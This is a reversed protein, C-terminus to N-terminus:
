GMRERSGGHPLVHRGADPAGPAELADYFPMDAGLLARIIKSDIASWASGRARGASTNRPHAIGVFFSPDPLPLVQRRELSWVFRTDEGEAVLPFSKRQWARKRYCMTNGAVWPRANARHRYRWSTRVSPAYYLLEQLGCVDAVPSRVLASAQRTIRDAAMWDDDDWHLILEGRATECAANRKAGLILRNPLREYRIRPDLPILDVIADEGDDLIVLETAPYDQRLFYEIARAAFSRRNATPMICSVLPSGMGSVAALPDRRSEYFGRDPSLVDPESVRLWGRPDIYAGCSFRWSNEGHRLYIFEREGSVRALRAGRRTVQRLFHADEALSLAPYRAGDKWLRRDYVLTGGHVDQVFLRRHLAPTVRWFEWAALVFFVSETFGCIDASGDILPALQTALRTPAYWDDDDWHAIYRGRALQVGRNRKAGISEVPTRLYRIRSDAPLRSSLDIPGDDLILLEAPPGVQRQFYRISQLVFDIRGRTPMVCSVLPAPASSSISCTAKHGRRIEVLERPAFHECAEGRCHPEYDSRENRLRLACFKDQYRRRSAPFWRAEDRSRRVTFPARYVYASMAWVGVFGARAARVNYDMEWCPGVGYGEDADGVAGIVESRVAYCFDALSHLPELTRWQRGFQQRTLASRMVVDEVTGLATAFVRQENWARNTSPGTLGHKPDAFLAELLRDLWQPGVLGGSELLVVVDAKASSGVLRNFCASAGRPEVSGLQQYHRLQRLARATAADPGDPLLIIEASADTHATLCALTERLREPEAHVTVGISVKTM